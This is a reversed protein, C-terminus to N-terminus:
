DGSVLGKAQKMAEESLGFCEAYEAVTTIIRELGSKFASILQDVAEVDRSGKGNGSGGTDDDQEESNGEGAEQFGVDTWHPQLTQKFKKLVVIARSFTNVASAIKPAIFGYKDETPSRM